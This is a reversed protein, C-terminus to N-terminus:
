ILILLFSDNFSNGFNYMILSSQYVSSDQLETVVPVWTPSIDLSHQGIQNAVGIM